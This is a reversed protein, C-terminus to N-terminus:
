RWTREHTGDSSWLEPGGGSGVAVLYLRSAGGILSGVWGAGPDTASRAFTRVRVTGAPTGDSHWLETGRRDRLFFVGGGVRTLERLSAVRGFAQVLTTGAATGDTSWLAGAALFFAREGVALPRSPGSEAAGPVLDGLPRTGVPTGDSTWPECGTAAPCAAFLVRGGLITTTAVGYVDYGPRVALGPPTLAVTGEMTGDSAWLRTGSSDSATFYARGRVSGIMQIWSYEDRAAFVRLLRTGSATGDTVWLGLEFRLSNADPVPLAVRTVFLARRGLSQLGGLVERSDRSGPEQNLNVVQYPAAAASRPALGLLPGSVLM